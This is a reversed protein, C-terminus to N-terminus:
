KNILHKKLQEIKNSITADILKDQYKLAFGGIIREDVTNKIEVSASGTAKKIYNAISDITSKDIASATVVETELINKRIKYESIFQEFIGKLLDERRNDLIVSIFDMTLPDMKPALTSQLIKRKKNIHIVPNKLILWFERAEKCIDVFNVADSYVSELNKLETANELLALAYRKIVRYDSM